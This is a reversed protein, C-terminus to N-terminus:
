FKAVVVKGGDFFSATHGGNEFNAVIGVLGLRENYLKQFRLLLARESLESFCFPPFEDLIGDFITRRPSFYNSSGWSYFLPLSSRRCVYNVQGLAVGRAPVDFLIPKAPKSLPALEIVTIHM